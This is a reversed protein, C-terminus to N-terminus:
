NFYRPSPAFPVQYIRGGTHDNAVVVLITGTFACTGSGPMARAKYEYFYQWLDLFQTPAGPETRGIMCACDWSKGGDFVDPVFHDPWVAAVSARDLKAVLAGSTNRWEGTLLVDRIFHDKNSSNYIALSVMNQVIFLHDPNTPGSKGEFKEGKTVSKSFTKFAKMAMKHCKVWDVDRLDVGSDLFGEGKDLLKEVKGRYKEEYLRGLVDGGLGREERALDIVLDLLGHVATEIGADETKSRWVQKLGKGLARLDSLDNNGAYADFADLAKGLKKAEKKLPKDAPSPGIDDIRDQIAKELDTVAESLTAAVVPAAFFALVLLATTIRRPMTRERRAM